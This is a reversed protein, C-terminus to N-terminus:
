LGVSSTTQTGQSRGLSGGSRTSRAGSGRMASLARGVLGVIGYFPSTAAFIMLVPVTLATDGAGFRGYQFLLRLIPEALAVLGACAALPALILSVKDGIGGTSHKDVKPLKISSTDVMAGSHMMTDTLVAVEEPTMGPAKLVMKVQTPSIDPFADIPLRAFALMGAGAIGFAVLLVLLRQRLSFEILRALM